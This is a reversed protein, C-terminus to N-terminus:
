EKKEGSFLGGIGKLAKGAADGVAKAGDVAAGGVASAGDVAAGGVATVGEVALKGAGTVVNTISSFIAGFVKRIVDVLSAGGEDKGINTLHVPPLPIPAGVGGTMKAAIKVQGHEVLFDEIVVKKGAKESKPKPEEKKTEAEKGKSLGDLIKGINSNGLGMEYNIQPENVYVRKVVITDTFISKPVFEVTVEGVGIAKDTHFGEPNGLAFGKLSVRGRLLRFEAKDLKIPVGVVSPGIKEAANKVLSGLFFNAAVMLVVLVVLLGVLIKKLM